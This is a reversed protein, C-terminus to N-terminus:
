ERRGKGRRATRPQGQAQLATAEGLRKKESALLAMPILEAALYMAAPFWVDGKLPRTLEEPVVLLFRIHQRHPLAQRLALLKLADMALKRRHGAKLEGVRAYCEAVIIQDSGTKWTADPKANQWVSSLGLEAAETKWTVRQWDPHLKGLRDLMALEIEHQVASDSPDPDVM